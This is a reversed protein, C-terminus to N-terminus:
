GTISAIHHKSDQAEPMSERDGFVVVDKQVSIESLAINTSTAQTTSTGATAGNRAWQLLSPAQRQM